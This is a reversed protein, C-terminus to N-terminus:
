GREGPDTPDMDPDGTGAREAVRATLLRHVVVGSIACLTAVTWLVTHWASTYQEILLPRSGGSLDGATVRGALERGGIQSQMLSILAAGFVALALANAGGRATNLLGSAMGVRDAAVHEMAQADVLAAALGNGVGILLLPGLLEAVGSGPGLVTMWANGGAILAIALVILRKASVGQNVLRGVLPPVALVPLTMALMMTGADGASFGAAGQLYTPLYVLVGVTGVATTLAALLWGLFPGNNLLALDLVPHDTRRELFGFLVLLLLGAGIYALVVPSTWGAGAVQNAGYMLGVVGLVFAATGPLDFRPRRDAASERMVRTGAVLLVGVGAFAGFMARWGLASVLWGTLTPGFALGVGVTTGVMAFARTRASGEFTSALLAGGGAMVGAAGVGSLTRAADLLLVHPALAAGATSVAYVVAGITFIRRRGVLDGLSGAVLMLCSAALFYGTVVWQLAAGSGGLDAAIHPLAVSTGSMAMPVVLYGLLVSGLTLAARVRGAAAPSPRVGPPGAPRGLKQSTSM